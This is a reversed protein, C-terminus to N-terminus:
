MCSMKLDLLSVLSDELLHCSLDVPDHLASIVSACHNLLLGGTDRVLFLVFNNLIPAALQCNCVYRTCETYTISINGM